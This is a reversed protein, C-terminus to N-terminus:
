SPEVKEEIERDFKSIEESYIKFKADVQPALKEYKSWLAYAKADSKEKTFQVLLSNMQNSLKKWERFSDIVGLLGDKAGTFKIPM